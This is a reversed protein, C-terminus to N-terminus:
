KGLATIYKVVEAFDEENIKALFPNMKENVREGSKMKKLSSILYWDHQGALMPAQQAPNGQGKDGHCVVCQGTKTYIEKGKAFEPADLNIVVKVEEGHKVEGQHKAIEEIEKVRQARNPDYYKKFGSLSFIGFLAAVFFLMVVLRSEM